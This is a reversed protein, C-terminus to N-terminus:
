LEIKLQEVVHLNRTEDLANALVDFSNVDILKLPLLIPRLLHLYVVVANLLLALAQSTLLKARLRENVTELLM